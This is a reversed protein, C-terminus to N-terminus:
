LYIIASILTAISLGMFLGLSFKTLYVTVSYDWNKPKEGNMYEKGSLDSSKLYTKPIYEVKWKNM